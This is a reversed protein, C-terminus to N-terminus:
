LKAFIPDINISAAQLILLGLIAKNDLPLSSEFPVSKTLFVLLINFFLLRLKMPLMSGFSQKISLASTM